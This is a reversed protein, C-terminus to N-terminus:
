PVRRETKLWREANREIALLPIEDLVSLRDIMTM